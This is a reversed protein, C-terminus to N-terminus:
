NTIVKETYAPSCLICYPRCANGERLRSIFSCTVKRSRPRALKDSLIALEVPRTIIFSYCSAIDATTSAIANGNSPPCNSESPRLSTLSLADAWRFRLVVCSESRIAIRYQLLSYGEAPLSGRCRVSPRTTLRRV